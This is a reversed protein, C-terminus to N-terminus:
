HWRYDCATGSVGSLGNLESPSRCCFIGHVTRGAPQKTAADDRWRGPFHACVPPKHETIILAFKGCLAAYVKNSRANKELWRTVWFFDPPGSSATSFHHPWQCAQMGLQLSAIIWGHCFLKVPKIILKLSVRAGKKSLHRAVSIPPTIRYTNLINLADQYGFWGARLLAPHWQLHMM